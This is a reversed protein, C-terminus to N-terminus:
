TTPKDPPVAELIAQWRDLDARMHAAYASRRVYWLTSDLAMMLALIQNFIAQPAAESWALAAPGIRDADMM